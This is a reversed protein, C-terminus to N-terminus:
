AGGQWPVIAERTFGGFYNIFHGGCGKLSQAALQKRDDTKALVHIVFRGDQLAKEYRHKVELEDNDIGLFEAVQLVKDLLGKRGTSARLREAQLAGCSVKLETDLFTGSLTDLTCTVQDSDDVVGLV